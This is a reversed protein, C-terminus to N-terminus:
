FREEFCIKILIKDKVYIESWQFIQISYLFKFLVKLKLTRSEKGGISFHQKLNEDEAIYYDEFIKAFKKDVM